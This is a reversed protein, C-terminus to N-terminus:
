SIIKFNENFEDISNVIVKDEFKEDENYWWVLANDQNFDFYVLICVTLGNYNFLTSNNLKNLYEHLLSIRKSVDNKNGIIKRVM